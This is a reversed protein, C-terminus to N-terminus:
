KKNNQRNGAPAYDSDYADTDNSDYGETDNSDYDTDYDEANSEYNVKSDINVHKATPAGAPKSGTSDAPKSGTTDAPKGGTMDAPEGGSDKSTDPPKNGPDKSTDGNHKSASKVSAGDGASKTHSLSRKAKGLLERRKSVSRRKIDRGAEQMSSYATGYERIFLQTYALPIKLPPSEIPIRTKPNNPSDENYDKMRLRGSYIAEEAPTKRKDSVYLSWPIRNIGVPARKTIEKKVTEESKPKKMFNRLSKIHLPVQSARNWPNIIQKKDIGLKTASKKVETGIIYFDTGSKNKSIRRRSKSSASVESRSKKRVLQRGNPKSSSISPRDRNLKPGVPKKEEKISKTESSKKTKGQKSNIRKQVKPLYVASLTDISPSISDTTNVPKKM